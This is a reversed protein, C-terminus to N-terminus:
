QNFALLISSLMQAETIHKQNFTFGNIGIYFPGFASSPIVQENKGARLEVNTVLRISTQPATPREFQCTWVVLDCAVQECEKAVLNTLSALKDFIMGSVEFPIEQDFTFCVKTTKV